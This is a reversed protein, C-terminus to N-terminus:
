KDDISNQYYIHLLKDKIWSIKQASEKGAEHHLCYKKYLQALGMMAEKRVRWQLPLSFRIRSLLSLNLHPFDDCDYCKKFYSSPFRFLSNGTGSNICQDYFVRKNNWIHRVRKDLTRERVFGLLQDNVLNLDKKGANIITVIVDHRIAEEPDHSRVKLYESQIFFFLFSYLRCKKYLVVNHFIPSFYLSLSPSSFVGLCFLQFVLQPAGTLDRALDPHNMLCHSAFKVCELRVPVHIDNFRSFFM